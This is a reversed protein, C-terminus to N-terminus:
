FQCHSGKLVAAISCALRSSQLQSDCRQYSNLNYKSSKEVDRQMSVSTFTGGSARRLHVGDRVNPIANSRKCTRFKRQALRPCVDAFVTYTVSPECTCTPWHWAWTWIIHCRSALSVINLMRPRHCKQFSLPEYQYSCQVIMSLWRRWNLFDVVGDLTQPVENLETVHTGLTM